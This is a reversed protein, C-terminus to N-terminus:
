GTKRQNVAKQLNQQILVNGPALSVCQKWYYASKDWDQEMEYTMALSALMNLKDPHKWGLQAMSSEQQEMEDLARHLWHKSQDLQGIERYAIGLNNMARIYNPRDTLAQYYQEIEGQKNGLADYAVGAALHIDPDDPAIGHAYDLHKLAERPNGSMILDSALNVRGAVFNPYSAILDRYIQIAKEPNGQATSERALNYQNNLSLMEPSMINPDFMTTGMNIMNDLQAITAIKYSAKRHKKFEYNDSYIQMVNSDEIKEWELNDLLFSVSIPQYIAQSMIEVSKYDRQVKRGSLGQRYLDIYEDIRMLTSSDHKVEDPLLSFKDPMFDFLLHGLHYLLNTDLFIFHAYHHTKKVQRLVDSSVQNLLDTKMAEFDPIQALDNGINICVSLHATRLYNLVSEHHEKTLYCVKALSYFAAYRSPDLHIAQYYCAKAKAYDGDRKRQVGHDLLKGVLNDDKKSQKDRLSTQKHRKKFINLM